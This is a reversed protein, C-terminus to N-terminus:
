LVIFGGFDYLNSNSLSILTKKYNSVFAKINNYDKHNEIAGTFMVADNICLACGGIFGNNYGTLKIGDNTVYLVDHGTAKLAKVIGADSSIFADNGLCVTSCACYGQRVKLVQLGVKLADEIIEECPNPGCILHSSSTFCNFICDNPYGEEPEKQSYLFEVFTDLKHVLYTSKSALLGGTKLKYFLMDAHYATENQIIPSKFGQICEIGNYYLENIIDTSLLSSGIVNIM